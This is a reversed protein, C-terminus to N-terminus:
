SGPRPVEIRRYVGDSDVERFGLKRWLNWAPNDLLVHAKVPKKAARASALMANVLETAIGKGRHAPHILIDILVFEDPGAQAYFFGAPIRNHLVVDFDADPYQARYQKERAEFQMRQLTDLQAPPLGLPAFQAARESRFLEFLYAEDDSTAPRRETRSQM